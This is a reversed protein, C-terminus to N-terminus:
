KKRSERVLGVILIFLCLVNLFISARSRDPYTILVGANILIGISLFIINNKKSKFM